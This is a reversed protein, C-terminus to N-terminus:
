AGADTPAPPAPTYEARVGMVLGPAFSTYAFREVGAAVFGERFQQLEPLDENNLEEFVATDYRSGRVSDPDDITLVDIRGGLSLRRVPKNVQTTVADGVVEDALDVMEAFLRGARMATTVIAVHEGTAARRLAMVLVARTKGTGRDGILNWRSWEEPPEKQFSLLSITM